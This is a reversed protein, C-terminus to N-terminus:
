LLVHGDNESELRDLVHKAHALDDVEDLPMDACSAAPAVKADGLNTESKRPPWIRM